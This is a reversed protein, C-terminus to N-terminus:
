KPLGFDDYLMTAHDITRWEPPLRDACERSTRLIREIREARDADTEPNPVQPTMDFYDYGSLHWCSNLPM